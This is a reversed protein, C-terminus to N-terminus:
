QFARCLCGMVDCRPGHRQVGHSCRGCPAPTMGAMDSVPVPAVVSAVPERVTVTAKKKLSPALTRLMETVTPGAELWAVVAQRVVWSVPREEAEASAKLREVVEEPLKVGILKM